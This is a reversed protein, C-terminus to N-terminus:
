SELIALRALLEEKSLSKREDKEHESLLELLEQKEEAKKQLNQKEELEEERVSIIFKLIELSLVKTTDQKPAGYLTDESSRLAKHLTEAMAKLKRVSLDWLDETSGYLGGQTAGGVTQPIHFRLKLRTAKAFMELTTKSM